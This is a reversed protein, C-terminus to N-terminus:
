VLPNVLSPNLASAHLAKYSLFYNLISISSISSSTPTHYTYSSHLHSLSLFTVYPAIFPPISTLHLSNSINPPHSYICSSILYPYSLSLFIHAHFPHPCPIPMIHGHIAMCLHSSIPVHHPTSLPFTTIPIHFNLSFFPNPSTTLHTYTHPAHSTLTFISMIPM